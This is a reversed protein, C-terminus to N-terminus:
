PTANVASTIVSYVKTTGVTTYAKIQYYYKTRTTLGTNTYSASTATAIGTFGSTPSKSRYIAYGTAGTVSTWSLKISTASARLAKLGTPTAPKPAANAAATAVGFTPTTGVTTYAKVKYYYKTGTTLGTDTYSTSSRTTIKLFGTSASTSRYIAYGTAGPVATWSIKDSTYGASTVTLGTPVAPIPAAGVVATAEGFFTTTGVTTYAKIQYYYTTGTTLGTDTYGTSTRTTIKVFGSSASTSRYIAYGTAGPVATWSIKNSNYGASTVTLGTPVAPPIEVIIATTDDLVGATLIGEYYTTFGSPAGFTITQDSGISFANTDISTVTGQFAVVSLSICELFANAGISTVSSPITISTLNNCYEFAAAGISTVSSPITINTLSSCHSFSFAIISTVSSPITISTLSWCYEFARDGISTVSGPITISTLYHCNSFAYSGISTVSDPITISTLNWCDYFANNEISTVSSPITISTLSKCYQFTHAKISTVSNSITISTLSTCYYFAWDGISTVSDPITISTMSTCSQFANSGISTVSDPITISTMSTCSQFANSGISMVSDPITISTLSTGFYFASNAISTVSVGGLTDPIVLIGDFGVPATFGTITAVGDTITYTLGSTADTDALVTERSITTIGIIISLSLVISLIRNSRTSKMVKEGWM